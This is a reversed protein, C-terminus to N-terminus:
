AREYLRHAQLYELVGAPVCAAVQDWAGRSAAERVATSSIMPLHPIPADPHDVGVRGLVYAPALEQIRDWAFWKHRELLIDAGVLLRLPQQPARRRLEELTRVTRSEGGLEEEIRSVVVGPIWSMAAEAMAVRDAFPALTKALPHQFTPVVLAGEFERGAQARALCLALVHALHPPNFSGGYVFLGM